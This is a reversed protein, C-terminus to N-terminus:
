EVEIVKYFSGDKEWVYKMVEGDGYNFTLIKRKGELTYNINKINSGFKRADFLCDGFEKDDGLYFNGDVKVLKQGENGLALVELNKYQLNGGDCLPIEKGSSCGSIMAPVLLTLLGTKARNKTKQIINKMGEELFGWKYVKHNQQRKIFTVLIPPLNNTSIIMITLTM